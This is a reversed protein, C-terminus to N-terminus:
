ESEYGEDHDALIGSRPNRTVDRIARGRMAGGPRFAHATLGVEIAERHRDIVEDLTVAGPNPYWQQVISFISRLQGQTADAFRGRLIQDPPVDTEATWFAQHDDDGQDRGMTDAMAPTLFVRLTEPTATM